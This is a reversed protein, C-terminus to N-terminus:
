SRHATIRTVPLPDPCTDRLAAITKNLTPHVVDPAIEAFPALTFMRHPIGPHPITLDADNVVTDGYLLLDLDITRPGWKVIRERGLELETLLLERLLEKPPLQTEVEIVQNIFDPQNEAGWAATQYLASESIIRCYRQIRRRAEALNTEREGLNSGLLLFIGSNM